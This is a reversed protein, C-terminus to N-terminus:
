RHQLISGPKYPARQLIFIRQVNTKIYIKKLKRGSFFHLTNNQTHTHTHARILVSICVMRHQIRRGYNLDGGGVKM